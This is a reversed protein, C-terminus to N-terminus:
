ELIIDGKMLILEWYCEYITCVTSKHREPTKCFSKFDRIKLIYDCAEHVQEPFIIKAAMYFSLEM